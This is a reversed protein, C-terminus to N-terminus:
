EELQEGLMERLRRRAQFVNWKVTEVSCELVQAIDKQPRGEITFMVLALRQKQPLRALAADLAEQLERSQAQREPTFATM